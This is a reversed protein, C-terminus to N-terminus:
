GCTAAPRRGITQNGAPLQFRKGADPGQLVTVQAVPRAARDAYRDSAPVVAIRDGSKIGSDAVPLAPDLAVRQGDLM